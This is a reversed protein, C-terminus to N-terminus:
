AAVVKLTVSGNATGKAILTPRAPPQDTPVGTVPDRDASDGLVDSPAVLDIRIPGPLHKATFVESRGAAIVQPSGKKVDNSLLDLLSSGVPLPWDKKALELLDGILDGMLGFDHLSIVQVQLWSKGTLSARMEFQERYDDPLDLRMNDKLELKRGAPHAAHVTGPPMRSVLVLGPCSERSSGNRVLAVQELLVDVNM